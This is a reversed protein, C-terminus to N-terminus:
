RVDRLLLGSVFSLCYSRIPRMRERLYLEIQAFYEGKGQSRWRKADAMDAQVTSSSYLRGFNIASAARRQEPTVRASPAGFIEAALMRHVDTGIKYATSM